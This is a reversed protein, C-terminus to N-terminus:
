GLSFVEPPMEDHYKAAVALASKMPLPYYKGNMSPIEMGILTTPSKHHSFKKYEVLRTFKEDNAYYLFYVHEPFANETPLVIKHFDRGVYPLEGYCNRFLQDPSITSV